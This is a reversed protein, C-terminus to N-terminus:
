RDIRGELSVSRITEFVTKSLQAARLGVQPMAARMSCQAREFVQAPVDSGFRGARLGQLLFEVLEHVVDRAVHRRDRIIGIAMPVAFGDRSSENLGGDVLNDALAEDFFLLHAPCRLARMFEQLDPRSHEILLQSAVELAPM